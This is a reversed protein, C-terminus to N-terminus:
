ADMAAPLVFDISVLPPVPRPEEHMHVPELEDNAQRRAVQLVLDV